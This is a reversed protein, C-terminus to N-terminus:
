GTSSAAEIFERPPCYGHALIYHYLLDPAIFTRGKADQVHIEADGLMIGEGEIDV